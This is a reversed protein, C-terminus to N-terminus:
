TTARVDPSPNDLQKYLADLFQFAPRTLTRGSNSQMVQIFDSVYKSLEKNTTAARTSKALQELQQGKQLVLRPLVPLADGDSTEVADKIDPRSNESEEPTGQTAADIIKTNNVLVPRDGLDLKAIGGLIGVM